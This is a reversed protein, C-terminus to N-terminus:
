ASEAAHRGVKILDRPIDPALRPVHSRSIKVSKMLGNGNNIKGLIVYFIGQIASPQGTWKLPNVLLKCFPYKRYNADQERTTAM